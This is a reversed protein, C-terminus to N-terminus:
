AAAIEARALKVNLAQTQDYADVKVSVVQTAYGPAAVEVDWTGKPLWLHFLGDARAFAQEGHKFIPQKVTFTAEVPEGDAGTVQGRAIPAWTTLASELGKWLVKEDEITEEFRPQFATGVEILYSLTGQSWFWHPAEGSGSPARAGFGMPARLRDLYETAFKEVVPDVKACPPYLTLVENGSNHIDIYVEPRVARQLAMMTRTEPESGGAVGRFTESSGSASSGCSGFLFPYNRNQDVGRSGDANKSRNKRWMREETWVTNVGDPNVQPVIYVDHTELLKTLAADLGYGSAIRDMASLAMVSSNLERAHHQAAIVMAPKPSSSPEGLKLAYISRGEHTKAAGPLASLDVKSAIAPYKAVLADIKEVTRAVDFYRPDISPADRGDANAVRLALLSVGKRLDAPRLTSTGDNRFTDM